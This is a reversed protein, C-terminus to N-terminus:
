ILFAQKLIILPPTPRDIPEDYSIKCSEFSVPIPLLAVPAAAVLSASLIGRYADSTTSPLREVVLQERDCCAAAAFSATAAPKQSGGMKECCCVTRAVSDFRCRFLAADAAAAGLVLILAMLGATIARIRRVSAM